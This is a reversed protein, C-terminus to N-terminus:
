GFTDWASSSILYTSLAAAHFNLWFGAAHSNNQRGLILISHDLIM